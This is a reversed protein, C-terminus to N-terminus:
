MVKASGTSRSLEALLKAVLKKPTLEDNFLAKANNGLWLMLEKDNKLALIKDALDKADGTKALLIDKKDTLLERIAPTDATIIAKGLAMGEFVKNPIVRKAKDTTGFIGLVIDASKIYGILTEFPVTPMFEINTINMAKAITQIHSSEQGTGIIRYRIDGFGELIKASQVIYEIGQLPIFSGHFHVTFAGKDKAIDSIATLGNRTVIDSISSGVFVRIFKDRQIKFKRSYYEINCDTDMLVKDASMPARKDLMFDRIGRFSYKSYLKRDLVNSDYLSVFADFIIFGKFLKRALWTVTHGPFAVLLIDPKINLEKWKRKLERYKSYRPFRKSDAQCEVVNWGNEKFGQILVRNRSYNPDYIGFFCITKM